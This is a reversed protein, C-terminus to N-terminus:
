RHSEVGDDGDATAGPAAFALGCRPCRDPEARLDYGCAPCTDIGTASADLGRLVGRARPLDAEAAHLAIAGSSATTFADASGIVHCWVGEDLLVSRHLEARAPDNYRRLVVVREDAAPVRVGEPMGDSSWYARAEYALVEAAGGEVEEVPEVPVPAVSPERQGGPSVILRSVLWLSFMTAGVIVSLLFCPDDGM